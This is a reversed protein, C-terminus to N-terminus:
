QVPNLVYVILDDSAGLHGVDVYQDSKLSLIIVVPVFLEWQVM